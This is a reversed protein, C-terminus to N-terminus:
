LSPARPFPRRSSTHDPARCGLYQRAIRRLEPYIASVVDKIAEEDGDSWAVLLGSIDEPCHATM